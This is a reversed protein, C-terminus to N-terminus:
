SIRGHGNLAYAPMSFFFKERLFLPAEVALAGHPQHRLTVEGGAIFDGSFFGVSESARSLMVNRAPIASRVACLVDDGSAQATIPFSVPM